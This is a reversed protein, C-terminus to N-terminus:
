LAVLAALALGTPPWVLSVSQGISAFRLGVRAAVFYLVALAAVTLLYAVPRPLRSWAGPTLSM